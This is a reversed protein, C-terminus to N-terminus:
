IDLNNPRGDALKKSTTTGYNKLEKQKKIIYIGRRAKGLRTINM